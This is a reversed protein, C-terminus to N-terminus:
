GLFMILYYYYFLINSCVASLESLLKEMFKMLKPGSQDAVEKVEKHSLPVSSIGAALNTCLSMAFVEMGLSKAVICEPVTSMGFAGIGINKGGSVESPTEYSPGPSCAYVGILQYIILLM